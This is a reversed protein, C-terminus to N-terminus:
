MLEERREPFFGKPWRATFTGDEDINIRRALVGENSPELAIVSIDSPLVPTMESPLEEDTTQRIRRLLRLILHESHTEILFQANSNAQTILDGLAVQIRPHIHLEPQECAILGRKRSLTAIIFPMMQSMGVGIENPYVTIKNNNDYLMYSHHIYERSPYIPKPAKKGNVETVRISIGGSPSVTQKFLHYKLALSEEFSRVVAIATHELKTAICYDLNLKDEELMWHNLQNVLTEDAKNLQSWAAAGNYWDKQSWYNQAQFTADPIIRLPGICLSDMLLNRLNDLPAVILDSLVETVVIKLNENEFSLGAVIKKDLLPIAGSRGNFVVPEHLTRVKSFTYEDVSDGYNEVKYTDTYRSDTVALHFDSVFADGSFDVSEDLNDFPDEEGQTKDRETVFPFDLIECLREKLSEHVPLRDDYSQRIWEDYESPLLLPHLFNIASISPHNLGSDCTVEAINIDDFAVRYRSIYATERPGSWAIDFEVSMTKAEEAPSSIGFDLDEFLDTISSYSSGLGGEKDFEIKISIAKRCDRGHVLNKFGGIYKDNLAELVDPDCQGKELIQQVYFLAMLVSSKGASNSGLLLTIPAFEITQTKKFSRFNTLSLKTIKM